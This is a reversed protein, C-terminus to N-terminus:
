VHFMPTEHSRQLNRVLPRDMPQFSTSGEVTRRVCPGRHREVAAVDAAKPGARALQGQRQAFDAYGDIPRHPSGALERDLTGEPVPIGRILKRRDLDGRQDRPPLYSSIGGRMARVM